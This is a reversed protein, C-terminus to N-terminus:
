PSWYDGLTALGVSRFALAIASQFPDILVSRLPGIWPLIFGLALGVIFWSAIALLSWLVLQGVGGHPGFAYHWLVHPILEAALFFAALTASFAFGAVAGAIIGWPLDMAGGGRRLVLIAGVVAGIWFTCLVFGRIFYSVFYHRFDRMSLEGNSEPQFDKIAFKENAGTLIPLWPLKLWGGFDTIPSREATAVGLKEAASQVASGRALGDVFPVLLVRLMVCVLLTTVLAPVFKVGRESVNVEPLAATFARPSYPPLGAAIPAPPAITATPPANAAVPPSPAPKPRQIGPMGQVDVTVRLTLKQGGNADLTLKGEGTPGLSWFNTDIEFPVLVHQPGAVQPELARLWPSDSKIQAYVWKKVTTQLTVQGRVRDKYKCTFRFEPQSLTVPPPKSVGMGEFFQQVGGVGKVTPGQVPYTWGNLAYWKQVEGSELIPVAAKPHHRMLDALERQTCAGQFPAKPFPQAVLDMRLPVEVIGGNTVVTLKAGYTQGSALGKTRITLRVVQERV